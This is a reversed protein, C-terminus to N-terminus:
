KLKYGVVLSIPLSMSLNSLEIGREESSPDILSYAVPSFSSLINGSMGFNFNGISTLIGLEGLGGWFFSNYYYNDVYFSSSFTRDKEISQSIYPGVGVFVKTNDNKLFHYRITSGLFLYSHSDTAEKYEDVTFEDREDRGGFTMLGLKSSISWREKNLYDVELGSSWTRLGKDLFPLKKSNNFSSSNLGGYLNISQANGSFYIFLFFFLFTQKM